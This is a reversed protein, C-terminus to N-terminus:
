LSCPDKSFSRSGDYITINISKEPLKWFCGYPRRRMLFSALKVSDGVNRWTEMSDDNYHLSRRQKGQKVLLVVYGEESARWSQIRITTDERQLYM